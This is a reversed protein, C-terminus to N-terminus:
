FTSTIAIIELWIITDGVRLWRAILHAFTTEYLLFTIKKETWDLQLEARYVEGNFLHIGRYRAHFWKWWWYLQVIVKMRRPLNRIKGVVEADCDMGKPIQYVKTYPPPPTSKM